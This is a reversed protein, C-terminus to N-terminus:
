YWAKLTRRMKDAFRPSRPNRGHPCRGRQGDFRSQRGSVNEALKPALLKEGPAASVRDAPFLMSKKCFKAGNTHPRSADTEPAGSANSTFMGTAAWSDAFVPLDTKQRSM